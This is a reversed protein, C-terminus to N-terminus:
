DQKLKAIFMVTTGRKYPRESWFSGRKDIWIESGSLYHFIVYNGGWSLDGKKYSWLKVQLIHLRILPPSSYTYQTNYMVLWHASRVQNVHITYQVHCTLTCKKTSKHTNHITCSLETYQANYMVLWHASRLQNLTCQVHCTLTFKKTSKHTNHITCSLDTHM